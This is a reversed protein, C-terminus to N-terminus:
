EAVPLTVPPLRGLPILGAAVNGDRISLGVSRAPRDDITTEAGFGSLASLVPRIPEVNLGPIRALERGLAEPDAIAITPDGSLVGDPSLSFRGSVEVQADGITLLARHVTLIGNESTFAELFRRNQGVLLYRGGTLTIAADFDAEPLDQNALTASFTRILLAVDLDLSEESGRVHLELREAKPASLPTLAETTVGIESFAISARDVARDRLHFSAHGTNWSAGLRGPLANGAYEFPADAEVILHTPDYVQAVARLGDSAVRHDPTELLAGDCVLTLRFPWGRVVRDGCEVVMGRSGANRIADASAEDVTSAAFWWFASWGAFIVVVALGLLQIRFSM